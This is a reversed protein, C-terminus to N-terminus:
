IAIDAITKYFGDFRTAAEIVCLQLNDVEQEGFLVNAYAEYLVSPLYKSRRLRSVPRSVKCLTLHPMFDFKDSVSVAESAVSLRARVAELLVAFRDGSEPRVKAFLIRQGFTSLGEVRLRTRLRGLEPELEATIQAMEREGDEGALRLMCLTIHFLGPKMCCESLAGEQGVIHEQVEIAKAVIDDSTIRISLFHTSREEEPVTFSGGCGDKAKPDLTVAYGDDEEDAGCHENEAVVTEGEEDIKADIQKIFSVIRISNSSTSGFVEDLREKKDWVKVGRYKFYEIRHQPISLAEYEAAAPDGWSSFKSFDEEVVGVFRDLYGVTFQSEPLDSDWQIRKIVDMATKMGRRIANQEEDKKRKVTKGKAGNNICISAPHMNRCVEGFRCKGVIYFQCVERSSAEEGEM